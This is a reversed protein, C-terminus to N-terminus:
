ATRYQLFAEAANFIRRRRDPKLKDLSRPMVSMRPNAEFFARHRDIFRWYLGDIVDGWGAEVGAEDALWPLPTAADAKTHDSMKILYNSGCIYPKTAFVGGDSMLGMGYVNPGMVWDASDVYMAMFWDYVQGPEIECLNMLNALVMLREIHHTWGHRLVKAIAADLPPLGTDAAWWHDTLSRTHNWANAGAQQHGFHHDIGRVFERWGILQRVFGELANLPVDNVEAAELARDLTERPTILGLNLPAALLSHFLFDGRGSLADEYDGFLSFREDLFRDLWALAQRRTTPWLWDDPDLHGPHDAFHKEVLAAVDRVHDTPGVAPTDPIAVSKPLPKRNEDDYSWKGGRPKGRDDILVGLRRRQREYFRALYPRKSPTGTTATTSTDIRHPDVGADELYNAFEARPTLFMPSPLVRLTLGRRDAFREFRERFWRDEIEFVILEEAPPDLTDLHDALKTEYDRRNRRGDDHLPEYHVACGLDRLTDAHARMAALFLTIKQKHHRAYTCLGLDEAMYIPLSALDGTRKLGLAMAVGAPPFLHNGLLVLLSRPRPM